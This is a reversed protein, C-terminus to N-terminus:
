SDSLGNFGLLFNDAAAAAASASITRRIWIAYFDDPAMTGLALPTGVPPQTFTLAPSPATSEDAVTDAVGNLGALDLAIDIVSSPSPTNTDIHLTASQFDLTAHKNQIYICRYETDGAASEASSVADFLDHLLLSTLETATIAGGLSTIGGSGVFTSKFFKIDAAVIPM